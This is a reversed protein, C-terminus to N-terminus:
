DHNRNDLNIKIILDSLPYTSCSHVYNFEKDARRRYDYGNPIFFEGKNVKIRCAGCEGSRCCTHIYLGNRELATAISENCKAKINTICIGQHVEINVEKNAKELPFGSIKTVDSIAFNEKRLRRLDVGLEELEKVIVHYMNISGCFYYTVEKSSYEKILDKTIFGKLGKYKPYNGSIVHIVKLHEGELQKLENFAIINDPNDSGYLITMNVDSNVAKFHKVMSLFPTIGAGGAICVINKHDRYSDYGFQGLGVELYTEDGVKLDQNLYHAVFSNPYDKVIIEVYHNRYSDLPESVISYARTVLSSGIKCEVTLYSGANFLPIDDSNFTIRVSESTEKEIRNVSAKIKGPHLARALSSIYDEKITKDDANNIAEKRAKTIRKIGSIDKLLGKIKMKVLGREEIIKM